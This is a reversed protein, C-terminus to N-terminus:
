ESSKHTTAKIYEIYSMKSLARMYISYFAMQSGAVSFTENDKLM